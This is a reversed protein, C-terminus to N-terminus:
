LVIVNKVQGPITTPAPVATLLRSTLRRPTSITQATFTDRVNGM